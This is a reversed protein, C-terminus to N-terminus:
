LLAILRQLTDTIPAGAELRKYHRASIGLAESAQEQTLGRMARWDKLQIKDM